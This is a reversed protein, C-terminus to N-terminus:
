AAVTLCDSDQQMDLLKDKASPLSELFTEMPRNGQCLEGQYPGETDYRLVWHDVNEQLDDVSLYIKRRFTIQYFEDL